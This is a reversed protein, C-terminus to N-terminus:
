GAGSTAIRHPGHRYLGRGATQLLQDLSCPARPDFVARGWILNRHDALDVIGGEGPSFDPDSRGDVRGPAAAGPQTTLPETSLSVAALRYDAIRGALDTPGTRARLVDAAQILGLDRRQGSRSTEVRSPELVLLTMSRNLAIALRRDREAAALFAPRSMLGTLPDTMTVALNAALLLHRDAAHRIARALPQCDIESKLLFDQAGERLLREALGAHSEDGLLLIAAPPAIAQLQRYAEVGHGDPLELSLLIADFPEVAAMGVAEQCTSAFQTEVRTWKAWYPGGDLEGLVDCLFLMDDACPEVLLIRLPM